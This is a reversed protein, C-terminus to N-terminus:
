CRIYDYYPHYGDYNREYNFYGYYHGCWEMPYLEPSKLDLFQIMVMPIVIALIVAVFLARAVRRIVFRGLPEGRHRTHGESVCWSAALSPTQVRSM